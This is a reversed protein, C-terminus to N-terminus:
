GTGYKKEEKLIALQKIEKYAELKKEEPIYKDIVMIVQNIMPALNEINIYKEININNYDILKLLKAVDEYVKTLARLAKIKEVSQPIQMYCLWAEKEVLQLKELM